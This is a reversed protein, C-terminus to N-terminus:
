YAVEADGIGLAGFDDSKRPVRGIGNLRNVIDPSARKCAHYRASRTAITPVSRLKESFYRVFVTSEATFISM